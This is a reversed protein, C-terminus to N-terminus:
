KLDQNYKGINAVDLQTLLDLARSRTDPDAKKFIGVFEAYRSQVFFQVFMTNPNDRNFAQLRTLASLVNQRANTENDYMSDLGTRYYGYLIDHIITYRTNNLNESLWYRNRLGDFNRWGTINSGEPANTVVNQAKSFYVSGSKLGFSDYDFGLITYVYYAFTATLNGTLPDNGQVRNDDFDVPQYEIYKFTFDNDQFNITASQYSSNFVPRAAQVTLTAKYTNDDSGNEINIIFNCQIKEQAQFVDNTWKRSNLMNTLQTQLTTFVKKDVTTGVRSAIVSVKAQLEQAHVSLAIILFSIVAISHKIM